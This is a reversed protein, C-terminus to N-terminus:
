TGLSLGTDGEDDCSLIANALFMIKGLATISAGVGVFRKTASGLPAPLSSWNVASSRLSFGTQDGSPLRIANM